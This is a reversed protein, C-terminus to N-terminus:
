RGSSLLTLDLHYSEGDGAGTISKANCVASKALADGQQAMECIRKATIEGTYRNGAGLEAKFWAAM